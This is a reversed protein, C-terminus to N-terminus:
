SKTGAQCLVILAVYYIKIKLIVTRNGAKAPPFYIFGVVACIDSTLPRQFFCGRYKDPNVNFLYFINIRIFM